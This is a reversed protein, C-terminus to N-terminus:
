WTSYVWSITDGDKLIFAEAGVPGFEWQAKTSNWLNWLWGHNKDGSVGNISTIFIGFEYKTYGVEAVIRTANFLTAGIPVVTSNHWMRTENGYDVLINVFMYGKYKALEKLSDKYLEQYRTYEGFYYLNFYSSVVLACLLAASVWIWGSREKAM